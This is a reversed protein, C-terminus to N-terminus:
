PHWDRRTQEVFDICIPYMHPALSGHEFSSDDRSSLISPNQDPDAADFADPAPVELSAYTQAQVTAPQPADPTVDLWVVTHARWLNDSINPVASTSLHVVVFTHSAASAHPWTDERGDWRVVQCAGLLERLEEVGEDSDVVGLVISPADAPLQALLNARESWKPKVLTCHRRLTVNNV